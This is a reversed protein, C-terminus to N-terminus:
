EALTAVVGQSYAKQLRRTVPGRSGGGLPRGDLEVLPVVERVANTLFVEDAALIESFPILAQRTTLDAAGALSLIHNRTLGPLLPLDAAPTSIQQDRVLFINSIAGELVNGVSDCLLADQCNAALAMRLAHHSALCNLSKLHPYGGRILGSPATIARIGQEQWSDLEAPLASLFLSFTAPSMANQYSRPLAPLSDAPVAPTHGRRSLTLRARCDVDALSNAEVLRTLISEAETLNIPCGIALEAAQAELRAFHEPMRYPRGHYLRLTTFIGDGFLYGGDFLSVTAEAAPLYSGDCYVLM